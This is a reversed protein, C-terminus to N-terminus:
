ICMIKGEILSWGISSTSSRIREEFRKAEEKAQTYNQQHNGIVILDIILLFILIPILM